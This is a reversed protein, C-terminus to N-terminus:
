DARNAEWRKREQLIADAVIKAIDKEGRLMHKATIFWAAHMVDEPYTEENHTM